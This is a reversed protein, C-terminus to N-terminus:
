FNLLVPRQAYGLGPGAIGMGILTETPTALKPHCAELFLRLGTHQIRRNRVRNRTDNKDIM